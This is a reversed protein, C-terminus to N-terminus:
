VFWTGRAGSCPALPVYPTVRAGRGENSIGLLFINAEQKRGDRFFGGDRVNRSFM